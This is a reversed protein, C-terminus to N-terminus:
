NESLKYDMIGVVNIIREGALPSYGVLLHITEILIHKFPITANLTTEMVLKNETDVTDM